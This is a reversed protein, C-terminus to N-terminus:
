NITFYNSFFFLRSYPIFINYKVLFFPTITILDIIGEPSFLFSTKTEDSWIRLFYELVFISLVIKDIILLSPQLHELSPLFHLPLISLILIVFFTLMGNVLRAKKSTMNHLCEYLFHRLTKNDM